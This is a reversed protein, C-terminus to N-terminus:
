PSCIGIGSSNPNLANTGVMLYYGNAKGQWGWHIHILFASLGHFSGVSIGLSGFFKCLEALANAHLNFALALFNKIYHM